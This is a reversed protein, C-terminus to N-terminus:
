NYTPAKDESRRLYLTWQDDSAAIKFDRELTPGYLKQITALAIVFGSGFLKPLLVADAGGFVIAPKPFYTKNFVIGYDWFIPSGPAPPWRMAFSYPDTFDFTLVRSNPPVKAKLIRVADNVKGVYGKPLHPDGGDGIVIMNKLPLSSFRPLEKDLRLIRTNKFAFIFGRVDRIEKTGLCFFLIALLPYRLVRASSGPWYRHLFMPLLEVLEAFLYIACFCDFPVEPFQRVPPSTVFLFGCTGVLVVSTATFDLLVRRWNPSNKILSNLGAALIILSFLRWFYGLVTRMSMLTRSRVHGAMSYDAIVSLPNTHSFVLVAIAVVLAGIAIKLVDKVGARRKIVALVVIPVAAFAYSIKLFALMGVILGALLRQFSRFKAQAGGRRARDGLLVALAVIGILAMGYHDFSIAYSIGTSPFGIHRPTCAILGAIVITIALLSNSVRRYLVLYSFATVTILWLASSFALVNATAGFLRIGIAPFVFNLIGLPSYFDRSPVYGHLLKWAGTLPMFADHGFLTQAFIGFQFIHIALSVNIAIAIFPLFDGACLMRTLRSM